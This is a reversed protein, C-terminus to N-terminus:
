QQGSIFRISHETSIDGTSYKARLNLDHNCNNSLTIYVKFYLLQRSKFKVTTEFYVKFYLRHGSIFRTYRQQGSIFSSLYIILKFIILRSIFSLTYSSGLNIRFYLQQM